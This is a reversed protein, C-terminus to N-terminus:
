DRRGGFANESPGYDCPAAAPCCAAAASASTWCSPSCHRQNQIPMRWLLKWCWRRAPVCALSVSWRPSWLCAYSSSLVFRGCGEDQCASGLYRFYEALLPSSIWMLFRGYSRSEIQFLLSRGLAHGEVHMQGVRCPWEFHELSRICFSEYCAVFGWGSWSWRLRQFNYCSQYTFCTGLM